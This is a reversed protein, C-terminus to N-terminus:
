SLLMLKGEPNWCFGKVVSFCGNDLDLVEPISKSKISGILDFTKNITKDDCENVKMDTYKHFYKKNLEDENLEEDETDSSDNIDNYENHINQEKECCYNKFTIYYSIGFIDQLRSLKDNNINEKIYEKIKQKKQSISM